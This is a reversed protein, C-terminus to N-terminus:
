EVGRFREQLVTAVASAPMVKEERTPWRGFKRQFGYAAWGEKYGRSRAIVLMDQYAKRRQELKATAPDVLQGNVVVPTENYIGNFRHYSWGEAYNMEARTRELHEWTSRKVEFSVQPKPQSFPVLEGDAEKPIDPTSEFKWHCNPCETVHSPVLLYCHKCRKLRPGADASLNKVPADLSWERDDAMSGHRLHNASHDLILAGDKGEAVRAIRGISQLHWTLSATPRAIIACELAPLDFGENVLGVNSLVQIAGSKLRAFAAARQTAPTRADVHEAPIGAMRFRDILHQSHAVNVAFALTKKGNALKLWTDVINAVLKPQDVKAALAKLNYEGATIKVGKMNPNNPVFVTPEVLTGEDILQRPTAAIVLENFLDGLPKQDLRAPTATAGMVMAMPYLDLIKLYTASACHHCEDCLILDADPKDRKVLTQVSAVQVQRRRAEIFGAQIIGVELGFARCERVLQAVLERRHVLFLTRVNMEKVLTAMCFSKGSGTPSVLIPRRGERLLEKLKDVAARQYPRIVM